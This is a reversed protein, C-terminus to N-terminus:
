DQKQKEELSSFQLQTLKTVGEVMDAIDKGFERLVDEYTYPTDEVVDHLLGAAITAPGVHLTALICAVNFPHVIYPEGSKRFQNVHLESAVDFAKRILKQSSEKKIYDKTLNYLDDYNVPANTEKIEQM